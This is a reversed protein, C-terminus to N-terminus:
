ARAATRGLVKFTFYTMTGDATILGGHPMTQTTSDPKFVIQISEGENIIQCFEPIPETTYVSAARPYYRLLLYDNTTSGKTLRLYVRFARGSIFSNSLGLCGTVSVACTQNCILPGGASGSTTSFYGNQDARRVMTASFGTVVEGTAVTITSLDITSPFKVVTFNGPAVFNNGMQLYMSPAIYLTDSVNPYGGFGFANYGKRWTMFISATPVVDRAVSSYGVSDTIRLYVVYSTQIQTTGVHFVYYQPDSASPYPTYSITSQFDATPSLAVTITNTNGGSSLSTYTYSVTAYSSNSTPNPAHASNDWRAAEMATINPKSYATVSVTKTVTFTKGRSDKVVMSLTNTGSTTFKGTNFSSGSGTSGNATFTYSVITSGHWGTIGSSPSLVASSHNQLYLNNWRNQPSVTIDAGSASKWASAYDRANFTVSRTEQGISEGNNLTEFRVTGAASSSTTMYPLWVSETPTFRMSTAGAAASLSISREGLMFTAKHTYSSSAPTITIDIYNSGNITVSTSSMTWGSMAPLYEIHFQVNSFRVRSLSSTSQRRNAFQIRATGSNGTVSSVTLTVGTRTTLNGLASDSSVYALGTANWAEVDFTFYCSGIGANPPLTWDVLRNEYGEYTTTSSTANDITTGQIDFVAESYGAAAM